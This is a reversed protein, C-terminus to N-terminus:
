DVPDAPQATASVDFGRRRMSARRARVASISVALAIGLSIVSVNWLLSKAFIRAGFALPNYGSAIAGLYPVLVFSICFLTIKPLLQRRVLVAAAISALGVILWEPVHLWAQSWYVAVQAMGRAVLWDAVPKRWGLDFWLSFVVPSALVGLAGGVIIWCAFILLRKQRTDREGEGV